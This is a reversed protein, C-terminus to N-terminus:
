VKKRLVGSLQLLYKANGLARLLWRPNAKVISSVTNYLVGPNMYFRRAAEECKRQTFHDPLIQFKGEKQDRWIDSGVLVSLVYFACFTPKIKLAFQITEEVTEETDGPLGIIFEVGSLLGARKSENILDALAEPQEPRRNINKLIKKSASQLGITVSTCGAAKMLPLIERRSNLFSMPHLICRWKLNYKREILKQCIERAWNDDLLSWIDDQFMIYRVGREQVLYDIERLVNDPSRRRCVHKWIKPSICYTCSFPCGRSAMICAYPQVMDFVHYDYYKTLDFKDWAPLPLEDLNKILERPPTYYFDDNEKYAIGRIQGREKKGRCYDLLEVITREGEGLCFADAGATLYDESDFMDPGGVFIKLKPFKQRVSRLFDLLREKMAAAAYFGVFVPSNEAIYANLSEKTHPYITFDLIESDVGQQRLVASLYAFGIQPERKMSYNRKGALAFSMDPQGVYVFLCKDSTPLIM